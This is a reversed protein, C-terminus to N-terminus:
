RMTTARNQNIINELIKQIRTEWNHNSVNIYECGIRLKPIVRHDYKERDKWFQLQAATLPPQKRAIRAETVRKELNDTYLYYIQPRLSQVSDILTNIHQAMEDTTTCYNRMLDNTMHSVLTADFLEYDLNEHNAQAYRVWLRLFIRTVESLSISSEPNFCFERRHLETDISEPFLPKRDIRYRLLVYDDQDIIQTSFAEEYEPFRALLESYDDKTLYATWCLDLPSYADGELHIGVHYGCAKLRDALEVVTTTKGVGSVGEIFVIHNM